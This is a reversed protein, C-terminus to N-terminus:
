DLIDISNEEPRYILEVAKGINWGLVIKVQANEPIDKDMLIEILEKKTMNGGLFIRRRTSYVM